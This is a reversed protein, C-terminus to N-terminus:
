FLSKRVSVEFIKHVIFCINNLLESSVETQLRYPTLPQNLRHSIPHIQLWTTDMQSVNPSDLLPQTNRHFTAHTQSLNPSVRLPHSLRHLTPHTQSLNPSDTFFYTHRIPKTLRHSAPQTHKQKNLSPHTQRAHRPISV